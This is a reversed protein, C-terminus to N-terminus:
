YGRGHDDNVSGGNQKFCKAIVGAVDCEDNALGESFKQTIVKNCHGSFAKFKQLITDSKDMLQIMQIFGDPHFRGLQLLGAYKYICALYCKQNRSLVNVSDINQLEAQGIQQSNMCEHQGSTFKQTVDYCGQGWDMLMRVDAANNERTFLVIICIFINIKLYKMISFKM